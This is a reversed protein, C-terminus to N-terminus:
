ESLWEYSTTCEGNQEYNDAITECEGEEVDFITTTSQYGSECSYEVVCDGTKTCSSFVMGALILAGAM